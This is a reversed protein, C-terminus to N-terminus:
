QKTNDIIHRCFLTQTVYLYPCLFLGVGYEFYKFADLFPLNYNHLIANVDGTILIEFIIRLTAAFLYWVIFSLKYYIYNGLNKKMYGISNTIATKAACNSLVLCYNSIFLKYDAIIVIIAVVILALSNNTGMYFRNSSFLLSLLQLSRPICNIIIIRKVTAWSKLYYIINNLISSEENVLLVTIKFLLNLSIPNIIFCLILTALIILIKIVESYLYWENFAMVQNIILYLAANSFMYILSPLILKFYYSFIIRKAEKKINKLMFFVGLLKKYYFHNLTKQGLFHTTLM